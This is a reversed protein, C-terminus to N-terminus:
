SAKYDALRNAPKGFFYNLAGLAEPFKALLVMASSEINKFSLGDRRIAIRLTQLGYAAIIVLLIRADKLLVALCAAAVPLLVAWSLASKLQAAFVREPLARTETWVQAYGYGGRTCRQWWQRFRFIRADHETMPGDLRWIEWGAARLRGALEPEEGAKLDPRFGGVQEFASVRMMADGGSSAAPGIPTNWEEDILRNYLSSEPDAEFRRGCAVAAQPNNDLFRIAQVLWGPALICDGDIFQVYACQPFHRRVESLGANRAAAASLSGSPGLRVTVIGLGIALDASGDNSASDVYVLQNTCRMAEELARKLREGENRGIVVVATRSTEADTMMM